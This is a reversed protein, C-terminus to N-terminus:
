RGGSQAMDIRFRGSSILRQDRTMTDTALAGDLLMM